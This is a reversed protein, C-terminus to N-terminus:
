QVGLDVEASLKLQTLCSTLLFSLSASISLRLNSIGGFYHTIHLYIVFIASNWKFCRVEHNSGGYGYTSVVHNWKMAIVSFILICIKLNLNLLYVM